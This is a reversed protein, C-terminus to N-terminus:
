GTYDSCMDPLWQWGYPYWITLKFGFTSILHQQHTHTKHGWIREIWSRDM